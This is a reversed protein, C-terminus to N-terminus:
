VTEASSTVSSRPRELDSGATKVDGVTAASQDFVKGYRDLTAIYDKTDACFQSTATDLAAQADTVAKEANSVRNQAVTVKNTGDDSCAAIVLCLLASAITLARWFRTMHVAMRRSSDDSPVRVPTMVWRSHIRTHRDSTPWVAQGEGVRRLTAGM